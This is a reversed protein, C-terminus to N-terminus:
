HSYVTQDRRGAFAPTPFRLTRGQPCVSRCLSIAHFKQCFKRGSRGHDDGNGASCIRLVPCRDPDARLAGIRGEVEKIGVIFQLAEVDVDGLRQALAHLDFAGEDGLVPVADNRRKQGVLIVGDDGRHRVRLLAALLDGEGVLIVLRRGAEHRRLGGRDGIRARFRQGALRKARLGRGNM